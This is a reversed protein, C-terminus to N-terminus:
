GLVVEVPVEVSTGPRPELRGTEGFTVLVLMVTYGVLLWAGVSRLRADLRPLPGENVVEHM